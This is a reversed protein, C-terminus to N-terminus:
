LVRHCSILKQIRQHIYDRHDENLVGLRLLDDKDLHKLRSGYIDEEMMNKALIHAFPFFTDHDLEIIWIAVTSPYWLTWDENIKM